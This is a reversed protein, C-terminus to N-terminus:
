MLFERQNAVISCEVFMKVNCEAKGKFSGHEVNSERDLGLTWSFFPKNKSQSHKFTCTCTCLMRPFNSIEGQQRIDHDVECNESCNYLHCVNSSMDQAKFCNSQLQWKRQQMM